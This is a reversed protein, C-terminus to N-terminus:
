QPAGATALDGKMITAGKVVNDTTVAVSADPTVKEIVAEAVFTGNRSIVLRAGEKMGDRAGLGVEVLTRGASEMSQTVKGNIQAPTQASLMAVSGATSTVSAGGKTAEATALAEQLKRITKEAYQLQTTAENNARALEANQSILKANEPAMRRIEESVRANEKALSENAATLQAVKNGEVTIQARASDREIEVDGKQKILDSIKQDASGKAIRLEQNLRDLDAQKAAITNNLAQVGAQAQLRATYESEANKKYNEQNKLAVVLVVAVVLSCVLQLVIFIKTLASL